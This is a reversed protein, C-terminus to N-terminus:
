RKVTYKNSKFTEIYCVNSDNSYLNYTVSRTDVLTQWDSKEVKLDMYNDNSVIVANYYLAADLIFRDDYPAILKGNLYRSPTYVLFGREELDDLAEPNRTVPDSRRFRPM